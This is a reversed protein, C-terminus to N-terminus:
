DLTGEPIVASEYGLMVQGIEARTRREGALDAHIVGRYMVLIRDALELVEDVDASILVVAVGRRALSRINEYIFDRSQIDLGWSPESFVIMRPPTNLERSLIVKQINGGSLQGMAQTPAGRIQFESILKETFNKVDGRRFVGANHFRHRNALILNDSVSSATSAGRILRDTPVYAMGLSRLRDPRFRTINRGDFVITGADPRSMGSMVDEIAELGSERMGTLGLVEGPAVSLNIHELLDQGAHRLGVGEMRYLPERHPIDEADSDSPAEASHHEDGSLLARVARVPFPRETLTALVKGGRMVSVTDAIQEVERLKHTILVVTVGRSKLTKLIAFLRAVEHEAFPATPEDLILVRPQRLLASIIAVFHLTGASLRAMSEKPDIVLGYREAFLRICSSARRQSLMTGGAIAEDGLALYEWVKLTPAPDPHQPVMDVGARIAEIPSSFVRKREDLYVSGHDPKEFGGLVRMLTSKGAGNEGILAHIRGAPFQISADDLARVGNDTYVRTISRLSVHM